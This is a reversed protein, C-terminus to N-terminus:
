KYVTIHLLHISLKSMNCSLSYGPLEKLNHPGPDVTVYQSSDRVHSTLCRM